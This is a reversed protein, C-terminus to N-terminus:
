KKKALFARVLETIVQSEDRRNKVCWLEFELAVATDIWYGKKQLEVGDRKRTRFTGSPTTPEEPAPKKVM